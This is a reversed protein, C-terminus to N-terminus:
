FNYKIGTSVVHDGMYTPQYKSNYVVGFGSLDGMNFEPDIAVLFKYETFLTWHKALQLDFGGIAQVAPAFDNADHQLKFSGDEIFVPDTLTQFEVGAGAGIYPTFITGTKLRLLGNLMFAASNLNGAVGATDFGVGGKENLRTGLYSGEVEVAPQLRLDGGLPISEFNYGVKLGGYGGVHNDNRGRFSFDTNPPFFATEGRFDARNNGDDQAVDAGGELGVYFGADSEAMAQASKMDKMDKAGPTPADPGAVAAVSAATLLSLTWYFRKNM